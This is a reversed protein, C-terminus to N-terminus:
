SRFRTVPDTSNSLRILEDATYKKGDVEYYTKGVDGITATTKRLHRHLYDIAEKVTRNM